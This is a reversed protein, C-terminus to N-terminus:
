RRAGGGQLNVGGCVGVERQHLGNISGMFDATVMDHCVAFAGPGHTHTKRTLDLDPRTVFPGPRFIFIGRTLQSDM